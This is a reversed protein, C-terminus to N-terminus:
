ALLARNKGWEFLQKKLDKPQYDELLSVIKQISLTPLEQILVWVPSSLTEEASKPIDAAAAAAAKFFIAKTWWLSSIM